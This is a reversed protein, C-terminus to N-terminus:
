AAENRKWIKVCIGNTTQISEFFDSNLRGLCHANVHDYKM